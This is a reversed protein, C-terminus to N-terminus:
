NENKFIREPKLDNKEGEAGRLYLILNFFETIHRM